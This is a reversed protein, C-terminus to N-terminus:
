GKFHARQNFGLEEPKGRLGSFLEAFPINNLINVNINRSETVPSGRQRMRVITRDWVFSRGSNAPRDSGAAHHMKSEAILNDNVSSLQDVIEVSNDLAFYHAEVMSSFRTLSWGLAILYILLLGAYNMDNLITM